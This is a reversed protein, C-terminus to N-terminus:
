YCDFQRYIIHSIRNVLGFNCKDSFSSRRVKTIIGRKTIDCLVDEMAKCLNGAGTNGTYKGHEDTGIVLLVM